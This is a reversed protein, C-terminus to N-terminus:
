VGGHTRTHKLADALCLPTDLLTDVATLALLDSDGKPEMGHTMNNIIAYPHDVDVFTIPDKFTPMHNVDVLLVAEAAEGPGKVEKTM